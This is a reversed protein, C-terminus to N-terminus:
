TAGRAPLTSQFQLAFTTPFGCFVLREGHPSRPNFYLARQGSCRSRHDSGTRPAHISINSIHASQVFDRREGHPSRPNFYNRFRQSARRGPREGHPSRPNFHCTGARSRAPPRPREGHPSRPNFHCDVGYAPPHEVDSGTRPAHISIQQVDAPADDATTAGRAPLTSQFVAGCIDCQVAPRDSGTRPAHISIVIHLLRHFDACTAGRAPLTSQFLCTKVRNLPRQLREGHPSRPNFNQCAAGALQRGQREGHPSRPNFNWAHTCAFGQFADSGTRPAHISIIDAPCLPQELFRREGHPSRPNFYGREVTQFFDICDSGTRPAHISIASPADANDEANDSGTRPAHISILPAPFGKPCIM